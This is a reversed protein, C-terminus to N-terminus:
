RWAVQQVSEGDSRLWLAGERGTVRIRAGRERWHGLVEESPLGFMNWAGVSVVAEVSRSSDPVVADVFEQTSSTSSGHHGVKVVDSSLLPEYREVLAQEVMGEADGAFLFSTRGYALRLVISANNAEEPQFHIGPLPSLVQTRVDPDLQLTDGASVAQHSVGLSDLLHHTEEYLSSSMPQGNHIVRGVQVGRLLAPLGGLHDSHPHSIVVADLSDIGYRELHPLITQAGVDTFGDRRGADVLVHSGGPLSLLAADGHGVDFFVVEMVNKRGDQMAASWLSISLLVICTILLRWRLRPRPWQVLVLLGATMGGLMWACRVYRRIVTAHLWTDGLEATWLLGQACVNAASGFTTAIVGGATGLVVALLGAALTGATLPIAALNLLIGAASAVGFHYLLIPLTGLSAGASILVTNATWRLLTSEQWRAPTIRELAPQLTVIAAVAAFSLQFGPNFLETPRVVLLVIAAVGLANLTQTSRQFLAAGILVVTMVVARVVSPAAGSILMYLGLLLITAGARGLEASRWPLRFRRLFPGLVGYLVMGVLLVHLGSVALLHMLGSHVFQERTQPDLRSRDGLILAGLVIRGEESPVLRDISERIAARRATVVGMLGGRESSAVAAGGEERVSLTGHIGRRRLYWGYDFDAPNTKEPLARLRGTLRLRDGRQVEPYTIPEGWPDQYLTVKLRLRAAELADGAAPALSDTEVVFRLRGEPRLPHSVVRGTAIVDLGREPLDALPEDSQHQAFRVGGAAVLVLGTLATTCLPLLSVRRRRGLLKLLLAVFIGLAGIAAWGGVNVCLLTSAVFIGFAMCGAALLAPYSTWHITSDPRM